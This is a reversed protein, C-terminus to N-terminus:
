GDNAELEAAVARGLDTITYGFHDGAPECLGREALERTHGAGVASHTLLELCHGEGWTLSEAIEKLSSM